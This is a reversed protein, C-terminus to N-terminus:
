TRRAIVLSEALNPHCQLLLVAWGGRDELIVDSEIFGATLPITDPYIDKSCKFINFDNMNCIGIDIFRSNNSLKKTMRLNDPSKSSVLKDMYRFELNALFLDAILPSANGSMPIGKIQKFVHPRFRVFSNFLLYDLAAKVKDFLLGPTCVTIGVLSFTSM